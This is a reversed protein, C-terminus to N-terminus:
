QNFAHEWVRIVRWGHYGLLTGVERDRKINRKIKNRWYKVNSKPENYHQPCGHWFCGDVFIAIKEKKNAFDPKGIIGKPQYVFGLSRMIAKIKLEPRTGYSKISTMIQSRTEISIRDAM